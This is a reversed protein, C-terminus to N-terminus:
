SDIILIIRELYGVASVISLGGGSIPGNVNLFGVRTRNDAISTQHFAAHIPQTEDSLVEQPRHSTAMSLIIVIMM